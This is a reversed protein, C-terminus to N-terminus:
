RDSGPIANSTGLAAFWRQYASWADARRMISEMDAMVVAMRSQALSMLNIKGARYESLSVRWTNEAQPVLQTQSVQGADVAEKWQAYVARLEQEMALRAKALDSERASQMAASERVRSRQNNGYFLPVPASLEFSWMNDQRMRTASPLGTMPDVGSTRLYGRIGYTVGVTVDPWYDLRARRHEAAAANLDFQARQVDPAGTVSISQLGSDLDLAPPLSDRLLPDTLTSADTRGVAYALDARKRDIDAQNSILKIQWQELELRSRMIDSQSGTGSSVMAAAADVMQQTLDRGKELSKRVALAAALDYYAMSVMRVMQERGAQLGAVAAETRARGAEGSARLKGPFPVQQMVGIQYMTMPDAHTNFTQPVNMLGFRVEPNMWARSMQTRSSEAAAMSQMSQLDPHASWSEHIYAALLSDSQTQSFATSTGLSGLALLLAAFFIPQRSLKM